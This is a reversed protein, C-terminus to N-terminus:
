KVLRYHYLGTIVDDRRKEYSYGMRKLDRWRASASCQSMGLAQAINGLTREKGDQVLNLFNELHKKLRPVDQPELDSGHFVPARLPLDLLSPQTIQDM